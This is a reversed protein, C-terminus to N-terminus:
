YYGRLMMMPLLVSLIAMIVSIGIWVIVGVLAGKGASKARLPTQEKWVLYLILGAVPIFFGLAAYGLSPADCPNNNPNAGSAVNEGQAYSPTRTSQLHNGAPPRQIKYPHTLWWGSFITETLPFVLETIIYQSIEGRLLLILITVLCFLSGPIYWFRKAIDSLSNEKIMFAMIALFALMGYSLAIASKALVDFLTSLFARPYYNQIDDPISRFAEAIYYIVNWISYVLLIASFPRTKKLFLLTASAFLLLLSLWTQWTFSVIGIFPARLDGNMHMSCYLFFIGHLTFFIGAVPFRIRHTAGEETRSDNSRHETASEISGAQESVGDASYRADENQTYALKQGCKICFQADDLCKAGCNSCYM